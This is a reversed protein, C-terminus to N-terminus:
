DDIKRYTLTKVHTGFSEDIRHSTYWETFELEQQANQDYPNLLLVEEFCKKAEVVNSAMLYFVGLNYWSNLIYRQIPEKNSEPLRYFLKLAEEFQEEEFSQIANNMKEDKQRQEAAVRSADAHLRKAEMSLPDLLMAEKFKKQAASPQESAALAKGERILESVRAKIESAPLTVKVSADEISSGESDKEKNSSRSDTILAESTSEGSEPKQAVSPIPVISVGKGDSSVADANSGGRDSLFGFLLGRSFYIGAALVVVGLVPYLIWKYSKKKLVVEEQVHHVPVVEQVVEEEQDVVTEEVKEEVKEEAWEEAKEGVEAEAMDGTEEGQANEEPSEAILEEQEFAGEDVYSPPAEAEETNAGQQNIKELYSLAEMHAPNISVIEKFLGEAADFEKKEFHEIAVTLKEKIKKNDMELLSRAINMLDQVAMNMEDLAWAESLKEIAEVYKKEKIYSEAEMIMEHVREDTSGSKAAKPAEDVSESEATAVAVSAKAEEKEELNADEQVEDYSSAKKGLTQDETSEALQDTEPVNSSAQPEAEGEEVVETHDESSAPEKPLWSKSIVEAMRMGEQAQKNDSDQEIVRRWANLAEEYKGSNYYDMAHKLLEEIEKKDM